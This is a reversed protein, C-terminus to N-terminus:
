QSILVVVSRANVRYSDDPKIEIEDGPLAVDLPSPLSTDVARRWHRGPVPPMEFDLDQSSMNLMVHLDDAGDFGGLTFAL